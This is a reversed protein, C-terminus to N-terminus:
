PDQDRPRDREWQRFHEADARRHARQGTYDILRTTWRAGLLRGIAILTPILLKEGLQLMIEGLAWAIWLLARVTLRLPATINRFAYQLQLPLLGLILHGGVWFLILMGLIVALGGILEMPPLRYRFRSVGRRGM